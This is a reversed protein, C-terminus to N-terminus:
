AEKPEPHDGSIRKELSDLRRRSEGLAKRLKGVETAYRPDRSAEAYAEEALKLRKGAERVLLAPRSLLDGRKGAMEATDAAATIAEQLAEMVEVRLREVSGGGEVPVTVTTDGATQTIWTLISQALDPGEDEGGGGLLDLGEPDDEAAEGGAEPFLFGLGRDKTSEVEERLYTEVFNAAIPRINRYGVGCLIAVQRAARMRLAAAADTKKLEEYDRDLEEIAVAADDFSPYGMRGSSAQILEDIMALMRLDKRVGALRKSDAVSAGYVEIGIRREDWGANKCDRIFLLRNTFTYEQRYDKSVQLRLELENIQQATSGSPLVMVRIHTKGLDRLAVARTNANVLVGERTIVGPDRQDNEALESKLAAFGSTGRLLSAIVEQAEASTPDKEVVARQPHVSLQSKIRHSNHNLRVSDLPVVAVTLSLNTDNWPIRYRDPSPGSEAQELAAKIAEAIVSESM